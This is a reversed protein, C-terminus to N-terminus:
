AALGRPEDHSVVSDQKQDVNQHSGGGPEGDFIWILQLPADQEGTYTAQDLRESHYAAAVTQTKMYTPAAQWGSCSILTASLNAIIQPVEITESTERIIKAAGLLIPSTGM